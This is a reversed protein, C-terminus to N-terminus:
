GFPVFHVLARVCSVETSAGCAGAVGSGSPSSAAAAPSPASAESAEILCSLFLSKIDPYPGSFAHFGLIVLLMCLVLYFFYIHLGSVQGSRWPRASSSPGSNVPVAAELMAALRAAKAEEKRKQVAKILRQNLEQADNLSQKAKKVNESKM